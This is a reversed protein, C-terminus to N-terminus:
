PRCSVTKQICAPESRAAIEAGVLERWSKAITYSQWLVHWQRRGFLGQLQSALSSLEKSEMIVSKDYGFGAFQAV